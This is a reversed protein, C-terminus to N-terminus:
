YIHTMHDSHKDIQISMRQQNRAWHDEFVPQRGELGEPVLHFVHMAINLQSIHHHGVWEVGTDHDLSANNLLVWDAVRRTVCIEGGAGVDGIESAVVESMGTYTVKGTVPHMNKVLVGDMDLADHIGMRVRLGNFIWKKRNKDKMRVTADMANHLERPWNVELLQFQIAIAYDVADKISHFALHFADGCTTIEYGRYRTLQSRLVEDHREHAQRMITVDDLAWLASSAEIDTFLFVPNVMPPSYTAAASAIALSPESVYFATTYEEPLYKGFSRVVCEQSCGMVVTLATGSNNFLLTSIGLVLTPIEVEFHSFLLILSILQYQFSFVGYVVMIAKIRKYLPSAVFAGHVPEYKRGTWKLSCVIAVVYVLCIAQIMNGSILIRYSQSNFGRNSITYAAEALFFIVVLVHVWKCYWRAVARERKLGRDMSNRALRSLEWTMPFMWLSSATLFTDGLVLMSSLWPRTVNGLQAVGRLGLADFQKSDVGQFQTEFEDDGIFCVDLYFIGRFLSSLWLYFFFFFFIFRVASIRLDTRQYIRAAVLGAAVSSILLSMAYLSSWFRM